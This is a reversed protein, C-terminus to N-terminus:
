SFQTCACQRLKNSIYRYGIARLYRNRYLVAATRIFECRPIDLYMCLFLRLIWECRGLDEYVSLRFYLTALDWTGVSTGGNSKWQTYTCYSGLWHMMFFSKNSIWCYRNRAHRYAHAPNNCMQRVRPISHWPFHVVFFQVEDGASRMHLRKHM